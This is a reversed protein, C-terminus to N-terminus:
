GLTDWDLFREVFEFFNKCDLSLDRTAFDYCYVAEEGVRLCYYWSAGSPSVMLLEDLPDVAITPQPDTSTRKRSNSHLESMIIPLNFMHSGIQTEGVGVNEVFWVFQDPLNPYAEVMAAIENAAPPQLGYLNGGPQLEVLFKKNWQDM